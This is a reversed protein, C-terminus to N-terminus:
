SQHTRKRVRENWVGSLSHFAGCFMTEIVCGVQYTAGCREVCGGSGECMSDVRVLSRIWGGSIRPVRVM